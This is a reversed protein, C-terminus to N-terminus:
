GPRRATGADSSKWGGSVLFAVGLGNAHLPQIVDLKLPKGSRQGYVVGDTRHVEPHLYWWGGVALALLLVLLTAILCLGMKLWRPLGLWLGSM